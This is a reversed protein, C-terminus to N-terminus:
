QCALTGNLCAYVGADTTACKCSTGGDASACVDGCQRCNNEDRPVCAGDCCHETAMCPNMDDCMVGADSPPPTVCKGASCTQGAVCKSDCSGCHAVDTMTDVCDGACCESTTGSCANGCRGCNLEDTQLEIAPVNDVEGDCNDDLMNCTEPQKSVENMCRGWTGNVCPQTGPRCIGEMSEAMTGSFCSSTENGVCTCDQNPTGDCDEDLMARDCVEATPVVPKECMQSLAGDVCRAVGAACLGMCLYTGDPNATCGAASSPYCAVDTMEDVKGDCDDDRGNCTELAHPPQCAMEWASEVCRQTGSSCEPRTGSVTCVRTMGSTCVPRATGADKLSMGGAGAEAPRDSGGGGGAGGEAGQASGGTAGMGSDKSSGAGAGGTGGGDAVRGSDVGADKSGDGGQEVSSDSPSAVNPESPTPKAICFSKYCQMDEGPCDADITCQALHDDFSCAVLLSCGLWAVWQTPGGIKSARM